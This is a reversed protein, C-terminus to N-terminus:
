TTACEPILGMQGSEADPKCVSGLFYDDTLFEEITPPKRWFDTLYLEELTTSSGGSSIESLVDLVAEKESVTLVRFAPDDRELAGLLSARDNATAM